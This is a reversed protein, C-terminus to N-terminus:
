RTAPHPHLNLQIWTAPHVNEIAAIGQQIKLRLESPAGAATQNAVSLFYPALKSGRLWTTQPLFAALAIIAIVVLICGRLIGFVAGLLRDLPGLGATHALAAILRGFLGFVIMVGFAILLFALADVIRESHIVHSMPSALLRYNWLALSLGVILGLLSIVERLFGQSAAVIASLVIIAVIIWDFPTM